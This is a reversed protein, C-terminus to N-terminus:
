MSAPQELVERYLVVETLDLDAPGDYHVFIHVDGPRTLAFRLHRAHHDAAFPISLWWPPHFGEQRPRLYDPSTVSAWRHEATRIWISSSRALQDSSMPGTYAATSIPAPDRDFFSAFTSGTFDFGVRYHGAPLDSYSITAEIPRGEAEHSARHIEVANRRTATPIFTVQIEDLALDGHGSYECYTYCIGPRDIEFTLSYDEDVEGGVLPFGSRSSWPSVVELTYLQAIILHGSVQGGPPDVRLGPFTLRYTGPHLVGVLSKIVLGPSTAGTRAHLSGNPAAADETLRLDPLSVFEKPAIRSTATSLHAVYPSLSKPLRHTLADTRSWLFPALAVSAALGWRLGFRRPRCSLAALLLGWFAIDLWPMGQQSAPFFHQHLPYFQNISRYLLNGGQYGAETQELTALVTELSIALVLAVLFAATATRMLFPLAWALGLALVPLATVLFRAPFGYGFIWNSHLGNLGATAAFFCLVVALRRDRCRALIVIGVLSFFYVPSGNLLGMEVQLWQGPLSISWNDIGLAGEGWAGSGPRLPGMWDGSFAFHFSVLAYLGAAVVVGVIGLALPRRPSHWAQLLVGAGCLLGIPVLRPHLFPLGCLLLALLGLLPVEWPGWSRYSGGPAQWHALALIAVLLIFLGPVEPSLQNTYHFFPGTVAMISTALIAAWPEAGLRVLYLFLLPVCLSALVSILLAAALRPNNWQDLAWWYAPLLAVSLGIPHQSHIKGEPSGPAKPVAFGTVHFEDTQELNNALDMDGDHLLSQTVRLYQGEDGHLMTVQCFYLAYLFYLPLCLALLGGALYKAPLSKEQRGPPLHVYGLYVLAVAWLAHPSWLLTLFPFVYVLPDVLASLRLALLVAALLAARRLREQLHPGGAFFRHRVWALVLGLLGLAAPGIPWEPRYGLPRVVLRLEHSAAGVLTEFGHLVLWAGLVGAALGLDLLFPRGDPAVIRNYAARAAEPLGKTPPSQKGEPAGKSPQRGKHRKM